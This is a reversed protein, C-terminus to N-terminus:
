SCPTPLTPSPRHHRHDIRNGGPSGPLLLEIDPPFTGAAHDSGLRLCVGPCDCIMLKKSTLHPTRLLLPLRLPPPRFQSPEVMTSPVQPVYCREHVVPRAPPCFFFFFTQNALKAHASAINARGKKELLFYGGRRFLGGTYRHVYTGRTYDKKRGRIATSSFHDVM